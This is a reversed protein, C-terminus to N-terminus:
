LLNSGAAAGIGLPLFLTSPCSYLDQPAFFFYDGHRPPPAPPRAAVGRGGPHGGGGAGGSGAGGGGWGGWVGGLAVAGGRHQPPATEADAPTEPNAPRAAQSGPM